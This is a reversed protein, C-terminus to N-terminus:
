PSRQILRVVYIVVPVYAMVFLCTAAGSLWFECKRIREIRRFLKGREESWRSGAFASIESLARGQLKSMADSGVLAEFVSSTGRSFEARSEWHLALSEMFDHAVSAVLSLLLFVAALAVCYTLRHM